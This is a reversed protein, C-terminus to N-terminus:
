HAGDRGLRHQLGDNVYGDVLHLDGLDSVETPAETGNTYTDNASEAAVQTFNKLRKKVGKKVM